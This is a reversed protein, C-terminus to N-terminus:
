DDIEGRLLAEHRACMECTPCTCNQTQEILAVRLRENETLLADIAKEKDSWNHGDSYLWESLIQIRERDTM